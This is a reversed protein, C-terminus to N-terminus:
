RTPYPTASSSYGQLAAVLVDLTARVPQGKPQTSGLSILHGGDQFYLYYAGDLSKDLVEPMSFGSLICRRGTTKDTFQRVYPRVRASAEPINKLLRSRESAVFQRLAATDSVTAPAAKIGLPWGNVSYEGPTTTTRVDATPDLEIRFSFANGQYNNFLLTNARRSKILQAEVPMGKGPQQGLAPLSPLLLVSVILLFGNRM